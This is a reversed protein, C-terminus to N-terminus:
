SIVTEANEFIAFEQTTEPRINWYLITKKILMKKMNSYNDDAIAIRMMMTVVDLKFPMSKMHSLLEIILSDYQLAEIDLLLRQKNLSLWDMIMKNTIVITPDITISLERLGAVYAKVTEPLVKKDAVVILGLLRMLHKWQNAGFQYTRKNPNRITPEHLLNMPIGNAGHHILLTLSDISKPTNLPFCGRKL